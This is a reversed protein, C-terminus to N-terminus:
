PDLETDFHVPRDVLVGGVFGCMQLNCIFTLNERCFTSNQGVVFIHRGKEYPGAEDM